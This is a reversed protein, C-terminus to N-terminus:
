KAAVLDMMLHATEAGSNQNQGTVLNGDVVVHTAFMVRLATESEYLAGAKRLETEPPLPTFEIGLQRVQADSVATLRRGQVLQNGDIGRAQLLGLPAHCVGGIVAGHANAQTVFNGLDPSQGLDYAAGWGGALVLIDYDKGDLASIRLSSELKGMANVDDEFRRDAATALPWRMSAPEVPVAGGKPSAIDVHMGAKLFAFYPV